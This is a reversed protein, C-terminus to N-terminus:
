TITARRAKASMNYTFGCGCDYKLTAHDKAKADVTALRMHEGCRPCLVRPISPHLEDSTAVRHAASSATEAGEISSSMLMVM